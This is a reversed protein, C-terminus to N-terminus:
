YQPVPQVMSDPQQNQPDDQQQQQQAPQRIKTIVKGQIAQRVSVNISDLLEGATNADYFKGGSAESICNLQDRANADGKLGLGVIDVKIHIGMAEMKRILECPDGGCTDVGDSILIVTKTGPLDRLDREAQLLAYTLPTLGFPKLGSVADRILRRNNKGLPVLLVSKTCDTMPNNDFGQGFVRLGLNIDQPIRALTNQLVIKAADMKQTTKDSMGMFNALGSKLSENMSRSADVLILINVPGGQRKINAQLITGYAGGQLATSQTGTQLTISQTGTQLTTSQTGTQLTTSQTGTQLPTSQIDTQPGTQLASDAGSMAPATNTGGATAPVYDGPPQAPNKQPADKKNVIELLAHEPLKNVPKKKNCGVCKAQAELLCAFPLCLMVGSLM